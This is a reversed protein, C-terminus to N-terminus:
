WDWRAPACSPCSATCSGPEAFTRGSRWTCVLVTRGALFDGPEADRGPALQGLGARLLQDLTALHQHHTADGGAGVESWSSASNPLWRPCVRRRALLFIRSPDGQTLLSAGLLACSATLGFRFPGGVTVLVLRLVTLPLLQVLLALLLLSLAFVLVGLPTLLVGTAIETGGPYGHSPIAGFPVTRGARGTSGTM